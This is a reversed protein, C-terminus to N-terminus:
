LRLYLRRRHLFWCVGVDLLIGGASIIVEGWGEAVSTNVFEAVPGGLVRAAIDDFAVVNGLLYITIPNLGIWVFPQAWRRWQRVDILWYFAALLM